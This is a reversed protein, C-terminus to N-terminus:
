LIYAPVDHSIKEADQIHVCGRAPDHVSSLCASCRWRHSGNPETERYVAFDLWTTGVKVCFDYKQTFSNFETVTVIGTRGLFTLPAFQPSM